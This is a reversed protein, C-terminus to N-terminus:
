KSAGMPRTLASAIAPPVPKHPQAALQKMIEPPISDGYSADVYDTSGREGIRTTKTRGPTYSRISGDKAFKIYSPVKLRNAIELDGPSFYGARDDDGPHTHFIGAISWGKELKLRLAFHDEQASVPSTDYYKGDPSLLVVGAQEDAARKTNLAYLAAVAAHQADPYDQPDITPSPAEPM